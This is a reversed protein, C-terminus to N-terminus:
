VTDLFSDLLKTLNIISEELVEKTIDKKTMLQASGHNIPNFNRYKAADEIINYSDSYEKYFEKLDKKRYYKEYNPKKRQPDKFYAFEATIRDFYSKYYSFAAFYDNRNKNCLYLFFIQLTLKSIEIKEFITIKYENERIWKSSPICYCQIYKNLASNEGLEKTLTTILDNHRFSRNLLYNIALEIDNMTWNGTRSKNFLLNLNDRITSGDKTNLLLTIFVKPAVNIIHNKSISIIKDKIIQKTFDIDTSYIIRNLIERSSMKSDAVIFTTELIEMYKKNQLINTKEIEHEIQELFSLLLQEQKDLEIEYIDFYDGNVIEGYFSKYLEDPLKDSENFRTKEFNLNLKNENFLTNIFKLFEEFFNNLTLKNSQSNFLIYLDDVYRIMKVDTIYQYNSFYSEIANDIKSLYVITALYSTGMSNEILPFNGNGVYKILEKYMMLDIQDIESSYSEVKAFLDDIDISLFFNAVDVKIFYDHEDKELIVKKYFDSYEHTYLPSISEVNGSYYVSIESSRDVQIKQSIELCVAQLILYLEPSILQSQRYQGNSRQIYNSQVQMSTNDFLLYGKDILTNFYNEDLLIQKNSGKTFPYWQLYKSLTRNPLGFYAEVIARWNDYDINFM